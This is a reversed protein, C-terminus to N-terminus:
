LLKEAKPMQGTALTSDPSLNDSQPNDFQSNDSQPNDPEAQPQKGTAWDPLEIEPIVETPTVVENDSNPKIPIDPTDDVRLDEAIAEALKRSAIKMRAAIQEKSMAAWIAGNEKKKGPKDSVPIIAGFQNRYINDEFELIDDNDPIEKFASLDSDTPFIMVSSLIKLFEFNASFNSKVDIFMVADADSNEIYAARFGLPEEYLVELEEMGILDSDQLMFDLEAKLDDKYNYTEITERIPKVIKHAEHTRYLSIGVDLLIPLFHGQAYLSIKSANVDAGLEDQTAILVSDVKKILPRAEADIHNHSKVTSCASMIIATFILVGSKSIYNM